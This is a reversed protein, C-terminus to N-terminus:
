ANSLLHFGLNLGISRHLLQVLEDDRNETRVAPPIDILVRAPVSLELADALKGVIIESVLSAPAQGAGRLKTYFVGADTEILVPWSSGGRDAKVVRHARYTQMVTM